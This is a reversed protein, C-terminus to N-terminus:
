YAIHGSKSVSRVCPSPLMGAMNPSVVYDPLNVWPYSHPHTNPNNRYCKYPCQRHAKKCDGNNRVFGLDTDDHMTYEVRSYFCVLSPALAASVSMFCGPRRRWVFAVHSLMLTMSWQLSGPTSLSFRFFCFLHFPPTNLLFLGASWESEGLQAEEM